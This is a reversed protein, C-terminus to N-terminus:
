ESEKMSDNTSLTDSVVFVTGLVMIVFAVTAKEKM